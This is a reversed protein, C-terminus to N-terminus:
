FGCSGEHDHALGVPGRRGIAPIPTWTAREIMRAAPARELTKFLPYRLPYRLSVNGGVPICVFAILAVHDQHDLVVVDLGPDRQKLQIALSLGALGGGLIVVDHGPTMRVATMTM